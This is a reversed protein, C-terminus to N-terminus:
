RQPSFMLAGVTGVCLVRRAMWARRTGKLRGELEELAIQRYVRLATPSPCRGSGKRTWPAYARRCRRRRRACAACTGSLTRSCTGRGRLEGTMRAGPLVERWCGKPLTLSSGCAQWCGRPRRRRVLVRGGLYALVVTVEVERRVIPPPLRPYGEADGRRARRLFAAVPCTECKPARPTCIRSGLDMLAQNYDGPRERDILAEAQTRLRQPTDITDEFALLRSLVRAQNGDWRRRPRALPSPPWRRRRTRAWARCNKLSRRAKRFGGRRCAEAAARHLNRARSYYGMGEWAKLVAEEDAAALAEVTPFRALFAEYRPAVTEARTQQLMIESLWVRYPERTGRWPLVRKKVTM